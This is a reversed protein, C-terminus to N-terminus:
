FFFILLTGLKTKLVKLATNLQKSVNNTNTDLKEAIEKHTLNEKRSLEFILKMKPPLAEIQKEIYANLENERVRHDTSISPHSAIYDGLSQLYRAAVKQRAFLDFIKNRVATFLYGALNTGPLDFSRKLWLNAFLDQVIDKAQEGDLIKKYAHHYLLYFYRDYIETYAAHDSEKLLQILENESLSQYAGM